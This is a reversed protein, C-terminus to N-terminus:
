NEVVVSLSEIRESTRQDFAAFHAALQTRGFQLLERHQTLAQADAELLEAIRDYRDQAPAAM